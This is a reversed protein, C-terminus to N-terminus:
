TNPGIEMKDYYLEVLANRRTIQLFQLVALSTDVQVTYENAYHRSKMQVRCLPADGVIQYIYENHECVTLQMCLSGTVVIRAWEDVKNNSLKNTM